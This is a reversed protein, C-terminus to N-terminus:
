CQEDVASEYLINNKGWFRFEALPIFGKKELLRNVATNERVTNVKVKRIDNEKLILLVKEILATAIGRGQQEPHVSILLLEAKAKSVSNKRFYSPCQVILLLLSPDFLVAAATRKLLALNRERLLRRWLTKPERGACIFGRVKGAEEYVFSLGNRILGNLVLRLTERGFRIFLPEFMYNEYLDIVAPLDKESMRRIM